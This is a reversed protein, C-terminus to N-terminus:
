KSAEKMVTATHKRDAGTCTPPGSLKVPSTYRRNCRPCIYATM